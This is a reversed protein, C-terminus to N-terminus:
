HRVPRLGGQHMVDSIAVNHSLSHAVRHIGYLIIYTVIIYISVMSELLPWASTRHNKIPDMDVGLRLSTYRHLLVAEIAQLQVPISM